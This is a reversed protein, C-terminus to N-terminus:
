GELTSPPLLEVNAVRQDGVRGNASYPALLPAFIVALAILFLVVTAVMAARHRLYRRFALKAPSSSETALGEAEDDGGPLPSSVTPVLLETLASGRTSGPM